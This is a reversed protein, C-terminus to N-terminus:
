RKLNVAEQLVEDSTSIIRANAQFGRQAVILSAFENALDVNSMELSGSRVTGLGSSGPAQTQALPGAADSASYLNGGAKVLSQPSRFSQLLVQGRPFSTQNTDNLVAIVQGNSEIRYSAVEAGTGATAPAGTADIRVDGRTSLAADSFGQVRMGNSTILFGQEDVQFSGDRTVYQANTATDRVVFFGQGDIALDTALGTSTPTGASFVNRITGTTVGSGVQVTGASGGTLTQSLTDAFTVQGAKFGATNVNAINNGIVDIREQSQQLGSVGSYLSRLM